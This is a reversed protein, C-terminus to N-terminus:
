VQVYVYSVSSPSYNAKIRSAGEEELTRFSATLWGAGILIGLSRHSPSAHRFAQIFHPTFIDAACSTMDRSAQIFHPTFIDAACSTVGRSGAAAAWSVSFNSESEHDPNKERENAAHSGIM